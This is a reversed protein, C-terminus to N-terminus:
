YIAFIRVNIAVLEMKPVEFFKLFNLIKLSYLESKITKIYILEVCSCTTYLQYGNRTVCEKFFWGTKTCRHGRAEMEICAVVLINISLMIYKFRLAFLLNGLSPTPIYTYMKFQLFLCVYMYM